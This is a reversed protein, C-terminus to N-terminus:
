EIGALLYALWKGVAQFRKKESIQKKAEESHRKGFMPHKAGAVRASIKARMERSARRRQALKTASIKAKQEDSMKKGYNPNKEGAQVGIHAASLKARGEASLKKGYNPNNKGASSLSIKAKAEVTHKRGTFAGAMAAAHEPTRVLGKHSASLKARHEETIKRGKAYQNGKQAASIKACHEETRELGRLGDGGDTMNTLPWGHDRGYQIWRMEADDLALVDEGTWFKMLPPVAEDPNDVYQLVEITPRLGASVIARCRAANATRAKLFIPRSHQQPREMGISTQGIYFRDGNRPDILVYIFHKM